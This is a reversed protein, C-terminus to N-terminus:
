LSYGKADEYFQRVTARSYEELDRGFGDLKTILDPSLTIIDCDCREAQKVNFVERASAWLFKPSGYRFTMANSILSEPDVGSDAIRGAFLSIIGDSGNLATMALHSQPVTFVATVNVKVGSTALTSILKGSSDGRTNTVPIKVYVNKGWSAIERAQREMENFDDAIVEFSVPQSGAIELVAKAFERYNTVGSKKMLSPNTTWGAVREHWSLERMQKLDAGDCFIVM